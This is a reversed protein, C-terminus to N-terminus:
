PFLKVKAGFRVVVSAPRGLLRRQDEGEWRAPVAAARLSRFRTSQLLALRAEPPPRAAGSAITWHCSARSLAKRGIRAELM